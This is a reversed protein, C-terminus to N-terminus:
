FSILRLFAALCKLSIYWGPSLFPVSTQPKFPSSPWECSPPFLFDITFLFKRGHLFTDWIFIIIELLLERGPESEKRIYIDRVFPYSSSQKWFKEHTQLKQFYDAWFLGWCFTVTQPPMNKQEEIAYLTPCKNVKNKGTKVLEAM